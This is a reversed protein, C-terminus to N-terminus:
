VYRVDHKIRAWYRPQLAKRSVLDVNHGLAAELELALDAIELGVPESFEVLIDVDSTDTAGGRAVSGFVGLRRLPYRAFLDAKIAKLQTTIATSSLM